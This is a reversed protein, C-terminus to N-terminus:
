IPHADEWIECRANIGLILVSIKIRVSNNAM